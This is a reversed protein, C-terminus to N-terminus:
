LASRGAALNDLLAMKARFRCSFRNDKLPNNIRLAFGFILSMLSRIGLRTAEARLTRELGLGATPKRRGTTAATELSSFTM